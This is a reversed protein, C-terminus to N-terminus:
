IQAGADSGSFVPCMRVSYAYAASRQSSSSLLNQSPWSLFFIDYIKDWRAVFVYLRPCTCSPLSLFPCPRVEWKCDLSGGRRSCRLPSVAYCSALFCLSSGIQSRSTKSALSSPPSGGGRSLPSLREVSQGAGGERLLKVPARTHQLTLLAPPSPLDPLWVSTYVFLAPQHSRNSGTKGFTLPPWNFYLQCSPSIAIVRNEALM